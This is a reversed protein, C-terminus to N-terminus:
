RYTANRLSPGPPLLPTVCLAVALRHRAWRPWEASRKHNKNRALNAPLQSRPAATAYRRPSSNVHATPTEDRTGSTEPPARVFANIEKEAGGRRGGGRAREHQKRANTEEEGLTATRDRPPRAMSQKATRPNYVIYTNPAPERIPHNFTKSTHRTRECTYHTALTALIPPHM